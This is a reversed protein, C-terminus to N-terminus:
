NFNLTISGSVQDNRKLPRYDLEAHSSLFGERGANIYDAVLLKNADTHVDRWTRLHQQGNSLVNIKRGDGAVLSASRINQKTARFLNTGATTQDESWDWTPKESPGASVSIPRQPNFAKARGQLAGLHQQPYYSWYGVRDWSLEDLEKPIDFVLGIQRPSVDQLLKFNYTVTFTGDNSVTYNLKGEAQAYTGTVEIVVKDASSEKLLISQAVWNSCLPNYPEFNQDDGLMQIGRGESNLPLLMLNAGSQILTTGKANSVTVKGNSKDFVFSNQKTSVTINATSAKTVLTTKLSKHVQLAQPKVTFLYEDVVFGLPSVVKMYLQSNPEDIGHLDLEFTGTKRPEIETHAIGEQDGWKWVIQCAATNTFNYRNELEFKLKGNSDRNAVQTIRVTSYAKKVNWYEPKERRWGDLPGWTGYGVVKHDPLFFTDDIGAWIAGGLVAKSNYMATWMRDLLPGWMDRIGPDASLEFRNYSNVHIYEDFTIPRKLDRYKDPGTPGPYHHNTIELEGDDADPGWQSFIRPRTPDMQKVVQGARKFYEKYKLSENGLSWIIVSPHSKDRNVMEVHQNVLLAEMKDASVDTQHAWCFPAEVEVFMGLEDCADLFREDPPYHSTRIYNVNAARFLEVDKKWIDDTLSRGRLPMVEHRNVGHLKVAKGNVLLQNGEVKLERFGIKRITRHLLKDGDMLEAQLTYLYPDESTWHKPQNVPIAFKFSKSEKVSLPDIQQIESGIPVVQADKNWLTFKVRLNQQKQNSQNAVELETHLTAHRFAEDFDTSAHFSSINTSAVAFVFIDRSIGGLNHAAYKSASALSDALTESRVAIAIDNARDWRVLDSIDFEFPTFGGLHYGVRKGNVYITSESFVGNCRIKIRKGRYSEPLTFKRAYGAQQGAPVQKGQMIWQGPVQINQTNGRNLSTWFDPKPTADFNWSGNLDVKTEAIDKPLATLTPISYDQGRSLFCNFILVLVIFPIKMRNM